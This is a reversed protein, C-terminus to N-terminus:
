YPQEEDEELYSKYPAYESQNGTAANDRVAAEDTAYDRLQTNRVNVPKINYKTTYKDFIKDIESEGGRIAQEYPSMAKRVDDYGGGLLKQRQGAVHGLNGQIKNRQTLIANRVGGERFKRQAALDELLSAFDETARTRDKDLAQFNASYDELVDGRQESAQRQVARPAAIQYASSGSGSALGLRRRLSDALMRSNTDVKGLERGRGQESIEAKDDFDEMARGRQKNAGSVEKNYANLLQELAQKLGADTRGLQRNLLDEKDELYALDAPDYSDSSGGGGTYPGPPQGPNKPDKPENKFKSATAVKDGGTQSGGEGFGIGAIPNTTGTASVPSGGADWPRSLNFGPTLDRKSVWRALEGLNPM